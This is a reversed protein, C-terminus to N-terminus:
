VEELHKQMVCMLIGPIHGESFGLFPSLSHLGLPSFKSCNSFNVFRTTKLIGSSSLLKGREAVEGLWWNM